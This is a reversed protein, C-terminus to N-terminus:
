YSVFKSKLVSIEKKTLLITELFKCNRATNIRTKNGKEASGGKGRLVLGGVM